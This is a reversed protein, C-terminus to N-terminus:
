RWGLEGALRLADEASLGPLRDQHLLASIRRAGAGAYLLYASDVAPFGLACKPHAAFVREADDKVSVRRLPQLGSATRCLKGTQGLRLLHEATM